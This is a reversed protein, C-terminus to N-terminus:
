RRVERGSGHDHLFSRNGSHGGHGAQGEFWHYVESRAARILPGGSKSLNLTVGPVIRIRRWFRFIM